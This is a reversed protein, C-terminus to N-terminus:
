TAWIRPCVAAKQMIAPRLGRWARVFGDRAQETSDGLYRLVLLSDLQTAAFSGHRDVGSVSERVQALWETQDVGPAIAVFTACVVFGNLGSLRNLDSRGRVVLREQLLPNKECRVLLKTTVSGEVFRHNGAPRGFCNIDWGIFRSASDIDIQLVQEARCQDFYLTEQPMWELSGGRVNIQQLQYAVRGDSGYYKTAGPTTILAEAAASCDAKLHLHDGGVIGGPPHLVYAHCVSQEPYFPRQVLLPGSHTRRM